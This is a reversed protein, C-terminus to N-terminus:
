SNLCYLSVVFLGAWFLRRPHIRNMGSPEFFLLERQNPTDVVGEWMQVWKESSKRRVCTMGVGQTLRGFVSARCAPALPYFRQAPLGLPLPFVGCWFPEHYEEYSSVVFLRIIGLMRTNVGM